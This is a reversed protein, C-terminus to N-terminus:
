NLRWIFYNLVTAFSVWLLYPALLLASLKSIRYFLFITFVISIWLIGIELLGAVPSKLGFFLISWLLNLFLQIGFFLIATGKEGKVEKKNLVLFLAIGMLIYLITWVPGFIWNPPNFFPKNLTTYWTPINQVTFFSGIVGALLCIAISGILKFINKM